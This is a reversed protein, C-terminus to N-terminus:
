AAGQVREITPGYWTALGLEVLARKAETIGGWYHSLHCVLCLDAFARQDPRLPEPEWTAPQFPEYHTGTSTIRRYKKTEFYWALRKERHFCLLDPLGKAVHSARYQSTTHVTAGFTRFLSVVARQMEKELMPKATLDALKRM